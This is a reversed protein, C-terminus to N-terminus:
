ADMFEVIEDDRVGVGFVNLKPVNIKLGLILFFENFVQLTNLLSEKHWESLIVADDANNLSRDNFLHSICISPNEVEVGRIRGNAVNDHLFLHLGEMIIVFLFPSMSDEQRFGRRVDFENTPNGNILISTRANYLCMCIWKRWKIGFGLRELMYDLFRWSVTDCAKEFDIKLILLKKKMKKYWDVM